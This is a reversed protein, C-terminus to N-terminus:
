LLQQRMGTRAPDIANLPARALKRLVFTASQCFAVSRRVRGFRAGRNGAGAANIGVLPLRVSADTLVGLRQLAYKVPVPNSTCFLARTLPLTALHLKRATAIDGAFYATHMAKIAKGAVHSTVSVAGVGGLALTPLNVNDDGCYIHFTEPATRAIEGTQVMDGSAEKVALINPCSQALHVSTAATMNVSTRGPVNYLMVPLEGVANAIALFHAILGAQSPKNYYPTVLLLADMGIELAQHALSISDATNNTGAGAILKARGGAHKKVLRFLNIKEDHMLTASEGTTGCVVLGDSGNEILHNVLREVQAEDIKSVNGPAFPTVMATIVQGFHAEQETQQTAM